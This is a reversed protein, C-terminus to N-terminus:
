FKDCVNEKSDDVYQGQGYLFVKLEVNEHMISDIKEFLEEEKEKEIAKIQITWFTYPSLVPRNAALKKFSNNSNETSGYQHKLSLKEGSQYNMNITITKGKYKYNSEGSHTMEVIFNKLLGNLTRNTDPADTEIM